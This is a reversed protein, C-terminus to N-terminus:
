GAPDHEELQTVRIELVGLREDLVAHWQAHRVWSDVHVLVACQPCKRDDATDEAM